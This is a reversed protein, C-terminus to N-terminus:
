RVHMCTYMCIYLVYVNFDETDMCVYEICDYVAVAYYMMHVRMMCVYM